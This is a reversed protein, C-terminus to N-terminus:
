RSIGGQRTSRMVDNVEPLTALNFDGIITHKIAGAATAFEITEQSNMGNRKGYILGAMFADGSGIREITNELSYNRSTFLKKNEFLFGRYDADNGEGNIKGRMTLAVCANDSFRTSIQKLFSEVPREKDPEIDFYMKGVTMDAVVVDADKLLGPMVDKPLKGYQWLANRHNCDASVTIGKSKAVGIAERCMEALGESIGANIGSWHFWQCGDFMKNWDIMGPKLLSFSSGNRDYIIKGNRIGAGQEYYFTGLRDGEFRIGEVNAGHKLLTNAAMKGLENDPVSSVFKVPEGFISLSVAVNAESGAWHM